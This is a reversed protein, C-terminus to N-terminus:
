EKSCACVCECNDGSVWPNIGPGRGNKGQKNQLYMVATSNVCLCKRM